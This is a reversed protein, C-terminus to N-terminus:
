RTQVAQFIAHSSERLDSVQNFVDGFVNNVQQDSNMWYSHKLSNTIGLATFPADDTHSWGFARCDFASAASLTFPFSCSSPAFASM